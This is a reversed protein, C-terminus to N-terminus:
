PFFFDLTFFIQIHIHTGPCHKKNCIRKEVRRGHCNKGGHSPRPHNCKRTRFQHGGNCRKSCKSWGSWVGWGGNVSFSLPPLNHKALFFKTITNKTSQILLYQSIDRIQNANQHIRLLPSM